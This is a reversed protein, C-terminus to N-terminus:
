GDFWVRSRISGATIKHELRSVRRGDLLQGPEVDLRDLAYLASAEAPDDDLRLGKTKTVSGAATASTLLVAGDLGVRWTGGIAECVAGLATGAPGALRTWTTFRATLLSADSAGSLTEGAATLLDVLVSRASVNRYSKPALQAGLGGAGGVVLVEVRGFVERARGPIISGQYRVAGDDTTLTVAGAPPATADLALTAHWAGRRPLVLSGRLVSLDALTAFAPM